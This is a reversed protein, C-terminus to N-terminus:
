LNRGLCFGAADFARAIDGADAGAAAAADFDEQTILGRTLAGRLEAELSDSDRTLTEM